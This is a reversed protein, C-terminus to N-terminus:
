YRILYFLTRKMLNHKESHRASKIKVESKESNKNWVNSEMCVNNDYGNFLFKFRFKDTVHYTGIPYCPFLLLIILFLFSKNFKIKRM